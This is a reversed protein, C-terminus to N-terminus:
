EGCLEGATTQLAKALAVLNGMRPLSRGTEWGQYAGLAVGSMKALARQSLGAAQRRAYLSRAFKTRKITTM